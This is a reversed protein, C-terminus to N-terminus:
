NCQYQHVNQRFWLIKKATAGVTGGAPERQVYFSHLASVASYVFNPPIRM